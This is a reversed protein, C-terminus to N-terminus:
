FDSKCYETILAVYRGVKPGKVVHRGVDYAVKPENVVHRGVLPTVWSGFMKEKVAFIRLKLM